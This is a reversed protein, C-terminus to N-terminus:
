PRIKVPRGQPTQCPLGLVRVLAAPQQRQSLDIIAAAAAVRGPDASHTQLNPAFPNHPEIGTARIRQNIALRRALPGLEIIGLTLRKRSVDLATRDRRDVPNPAPSQDAQYLPEVLFKRDRKVFRGHATFRL